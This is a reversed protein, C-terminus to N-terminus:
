KWKGDYIYAHDSLIEEISVCQQNVEKVMQTLEDPDINMDMPIIILENISSPLLAFRGYKKYLNEIVNPYLIATAGNLCQKNTIVIQQEDDKLGLTFAEERTINMFNLMTDFMSRVSVPFLRPTNETALDFLEQETVNWIDANQFTVKMSAEDTIQVTYIVALDLFDRHPLTKLLEKNAEKNILRYCIRSKVFGNFDTLIEPDIKAIEDHQELVKANDAIIQKAIERSSKKEDYNEVYLTPVIMSSNKFRITVGHLIVGNNKTVERLEVTANDEGLIAKIEKVILNIKRKTM